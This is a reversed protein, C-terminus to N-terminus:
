STSSAKFLPSLALVVGSIGTVWVGPGILDTVSGSSFATNISRDLQITWLIAAAAIAAGCLFRLWGAGRVFSVVIGVAALGVIFYGVKPDTATSTNDFLSAVPIKFATVDFVSSSSWNVLAGVIAGVGALVGVVVDSGSAAGTSSAAPAVHPRSQRPAAPGSGSSGAGPDADVGIAPPVLRRGDVWGVDVDNVEVHAWLGDTELVRTAVRGPIPPWVVADPHPDAFPMLGEDPTLHRASPPGVSAEADRTTATVRRSVSGDTDADGPAAYQESAGAAALAQGCVACFRASQQAASGCKPCTKM